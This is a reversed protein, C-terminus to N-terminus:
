AGAAKVMKGAKKRVFESEYRVGKGKYPEPERLARIDAAVQGVLEKNIGKVIIKNNGEVEFEIGKIEDINIPHSYGLNLLLGKGQKAAKYGVGIITLTKQYGKEVGLVMNNILTRSLGFLARTIRDNNVKEVIVKGDEIKLKIRRDIERSLEGKPGKVQVVNDQININVGKPIEIPLKGIRSMTVEMVLEQALTGSAKLSLCWLQLKNSAVQL